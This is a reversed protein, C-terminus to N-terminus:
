KNASCAIKGTDPVGAILMVDTVTGVLTALAEVAVKVGPTSESNVSKLTGNELSVGFKNTEFLGSDYYVSYITTYDAVIKTGQKTVKQCYGSSTLPEYMSHTIEGTIPNRIRDLVIKVPVPKYGYFLVGKTESDKFTPSKVTYVTGSCASVTFAFM